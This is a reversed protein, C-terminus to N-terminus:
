FESVPEGHLGKDVLVARAASWKMGPRWRLIRKLIPAIEETVIGDKVVLGAVFNDSTIRWLTEMYTKVM